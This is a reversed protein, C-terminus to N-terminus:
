KVFRSAFIKRNGSSSKGNGNWNLYVLNGRIGRQKVVVSGIASRSANGYGIFVAIGDFACREGKSFYGVLCLIKIIGCVLLSPAKGQLKGKRATNFASLFDLKAELKNVVM